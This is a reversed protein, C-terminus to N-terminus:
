PDARARASRALRQATEQSWTRLSKGSGTLTHLARVAEDRQERKIARPNGGRRRKSLKREVAAAPVSPEETLSLKPLAARILEGAIAIARVPALM